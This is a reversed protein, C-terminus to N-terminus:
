GRVCKSSTVRCRACRIHADGSNQTIISPLYIRCTVGASNCTSCPEPNDIGYEGHMLRANAYRRRQDRCLDTWNGKYYPHDPNANNETASRIDRQFTKQSLGVPLPPIVRPDREPIAPLRSPPADPVVDGENRNNPAVVRSESSHLFEAAARERNRAAVRV